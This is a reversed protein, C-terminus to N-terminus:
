CECGSIEDSVKEQHTSPFPCLKKTQQCYGSTIKNWNILAIETVFNERKRSESGGKETAGV